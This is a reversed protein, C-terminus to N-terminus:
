KEIEEDAVVFYAMDGFQGVHALICGDILKEIQQRTLSWYDINIEKKTESEFQETTWILRDDIPNPKNEQTM